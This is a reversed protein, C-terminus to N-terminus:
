MLYELYSQLGPFLSLLHTFVFWNARHRSRLGLKASITLCVSYTRGTIMGPINPVMRSRCIHLNRDVVHVTILWPDDQVWRSYFFHLWRDKILLLPPGQSTYPSAATWDPEAGMLSYNERLMWSDPECIHSCLLGSSGEAATSCRKFHMGDMGRSPKWNPPPAKLFRVKM